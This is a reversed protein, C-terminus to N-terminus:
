KAADVQRKRAALSGAVTSSPKNDLIRTPPQNKGATPLNKSPDRDVQINPKLQKPM